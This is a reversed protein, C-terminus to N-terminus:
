RPLVEIQEPHSADILPGNFRKIWGRARVRREKLALPDLGAKEFLRRAKASLSVTFDTRWDAGFNLYVRGKVRAADLVIGEVIQFTDIFRGAEGPVRISYFPHAWIGRGAGRAASEVSLMEAALRRNDPFTYVRAMGLRLLEGQVWLGKGGVKDEVHLHALLRGHRDLRQGGHGFRVARGRVMAELAWKSERALPWAVFGPRGLPLKPAQIGVLRVQTAGAIASELRVTDGDVVERVVARGGDELGGDELGGAAFAPAAPSLVALFLATIAHRRPTM